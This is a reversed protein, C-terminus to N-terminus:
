AAMSVMLYSAYGAATGPVNGKGFAGVDILFIVVPFVMTFLLFRPNRLARKAELALYTTKMASGGRRRRDARPLSRGPRCGQDRHRVCAPLREPAGPDRCGLRRM